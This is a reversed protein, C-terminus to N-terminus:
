GRMDGALYKGYHDFLERAGMAGVECERAWFRVTLNKDGEKKQGKCNIWGEAHLSDSLVRSGPIKHHENRLWNKVATFTTVGHTFPGTADTISQSIELVADGRSSKVMARMAPTRVPLSGYQFASIDRNLLHYYVASIFAGDNDIKGGLLTYFAKELSEDPANIVLLKDDDENFQLANAANSFMYISYLSQQVANGKGKLNLTEKDSNSLKAKLDNFHSSGLSRIEEFCLVKKEFYVDGWGAKDANPSVTGAADELITMLPSLTMTKGTRPKGHTLVQWRIKTAPNQLTFAMHDLVLPAYEGYIHNCLYLWDAILAENQVPAMSPPKYTNCYRLDGINFFPNDTPHWGVGEATLKSGLEAIYKSPRDGGEPFIHMYRNDLVAASDMRTKNALNFYGGKGTSMLVINQGVDIVSEFNATSAIKLSDKDYQGAVGPPPTTVPREPSGLARSPGVGAIGAAQYMAGPNVAETQGHLIGGLNNDTIYRTLNEKYGAHGNLWAELEQHPRDICHGHFCKFSLGANPFIKIEAGSVDTTDSHTDLWPCEVEYTGIDSGHGQVNFIGLAPHSDDSLGTIGITNHDTANIDVGFPDALQELSYKREPNWSVMRCKFGDEWPNCGKGNSGEPLRMYRTASKMGSDKGDKTIGAGVWGDVVNTAQSMTYDLFPSPQRVMYGYHFNGPSTELIYSPPPLRNIQSEDIKTGVDDAVLVGVSKFLAKRRQAYGNEGPSFQSICFYQNDFAPLAGSGYWGGGWINVGSPQNNPDNPFSCVHAFPFADGFIATLFETNSVQLPAPTGLFDPCLPAPTGLFDVIPQSIITNM